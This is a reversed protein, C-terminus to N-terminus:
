AARRIKRTSRATSKGAPDATQRGTPPIADPSRSSPSPSPSNKRTDAGPRALAHARLGVTILEVKNRRILQALSGDEVRGDLGACFPIPAGDADFIDSWGALFQRASVIGVKNISATREAMAARYNASVALLKREIEAFLSGFDDPMAARDEADLDAQEAFWARANDVVDVMAQFGDGRARIEAAMLDCMEVNSRFRIGARAKEVEFDEVELVSPVRLDYRPGGKGSPWYPIVQGAALPLPDDTM